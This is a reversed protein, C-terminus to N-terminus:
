GSILRYCDDVINQAADPKGYERAKAAMNELEQPNEMYYKIKTGLMAATLEKEPILEAADADALDAANLTQHDDAAYPFPIFIAAKGMATIEAVTTAGARCVILDAQCYQEAMNDFFARATASVAKQGYADRVTKEDAEGTQHVFHLRDADQLLELAEIMVMNIRHAGQSGGIILVTFKKRGSPPSVTKDVSAATELLERRVPNGTWYVKRPNFRSRTNEFSIYIRDALRALIRNTIGPLINQEHIVIPVRMLWAGMVVPGASYSGLGVVLDPSFNRLLGMAALVAGPIKLVSKIQNWIGRGKIGAVQISQLDFGAKTLVTKELPNGTSIFIIRTASNRTMFERAIAIGPFLHGGTGGGAIVVKLARQATSSSREAQPDDRRQRSQLDSAPVEEAALSLGGVEPQYYTDNEIIM